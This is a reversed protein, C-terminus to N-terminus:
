QPAFGTTHLHCPLCSFEYHAAGSGDARYYATATHCVECIGSGPTTAGAFSGDARGLLNDFRIPVEAGATTTLLTRVLRVNDSGHPDHCQACPLAGTGAPAHTAPTAHCQECREAARHGPGPTASVEAHCTACEFGSHQSPQELLAAQTAHCLACNTDTAIPAFAHAHDHCDTCGDTFHPAGDGRRTYFDTSRHCVECLGTGPDTPNTFGGPAAGTEELFTVPSIRRRWRISEAVLHLNTSGHVDHCALCNRTARRGSRRPAKEPHGPPEAHCSECGPIARHRRGVRGPRRDDHCSGCDLVAAHGGTTEARLAQTAHCSACTAPNTVAAAGAATVLVILAMLSVRM